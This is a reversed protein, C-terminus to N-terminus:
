ITAVVSIKKPASDKKGSETNCATLMLVSAFLLIAISAIKKM